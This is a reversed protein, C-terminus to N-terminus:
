AKKRPKLRGVMKDLLARFEPSWWEKLTNIRDEKSVLSNKILESRTILKTKTWINKSMRLYHKMMKESAPLVEEQPLIENVLNVDLAEQPDCLHGKMILEYSAKKGLWFDYLEVFGRPLLFGIAIENLGIKFKPDNAMIRYDCCIAILCGGAHSHGTISAILPKPFKTLEWLMDCFNDWFEKMKAEDYQYLSILDLGPSFFNRQGTIIVGHVNESQELDQISKRIDQVMELNIPNARGNRMHMIAYEEKYEIEITNM